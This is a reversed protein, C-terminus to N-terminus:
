GKEFLNAVNNRNFKLAYARASRGNPSTRNPDAGSELLLRAVEFYGQNTAYMLATLGAFGQADVKAGSKILLWAMDPDNNRAARILPTEGSLPYRAEPDAGAQLLLRAVELRRYQIALHLASLGNASHAEAGVGQELTRQIDEQENRIIARLFAEEVPVAERFRGVHRTRWLRVKTKFARGIRAVRRVVFLLSDFIGTFLLEFFREDWSPKVPSTNSM